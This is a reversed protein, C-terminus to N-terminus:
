YKDQVIKLKLQSCSDVINWSMFITPFHKQTFVQREDNKKKNKLNILLNNEQNKLNFGSIFCEM